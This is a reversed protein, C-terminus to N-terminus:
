IFEPILLLGALVLWDLIANERSATLRSYSDRVTESWARHPFIEQFERLVPTRRPWLAALEM